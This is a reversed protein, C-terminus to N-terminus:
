FSRGGVLAPIPTPRGDEYRWVEYPFDASASLVFSFAAGVGPQDRLHRYYKVYQRGKTAMDVRPSNNSFETIFLLKDPWRERYAKYGRGHEKSLMQKENQWYCHCALWDARRIAQKAGEMFSWAEYRLEAVGPGPSLGPWGFKARPFQSKLRGVVDLFWDGFERGDRWSLGLGEPTLNVENHVEYYRVGREYFRGMDYEVWRAFDAAPVVRGRFDAFLRVMIFMDPNIARARDVDEPAASSSFKIAEARAARVPEWDPQMMRGDARGHVGVLCKGYEWKPLPVDPEEEDTKEPFVLYPTPDIVDRPFHTLGAATAGEKKLTLHLHSGSANGTSDALGIKKGAQVQQGTHVTAKNLHAYITKFGGAHRIRVHIGYPHNGSGDHVMYVEGDACARVKTNRPAHIDIGEHGPLGWRRYIDPNEGFGQTIETYKVPWLLRIEPEPEGPEIVPEPPEVPVPPEEPTPPAPPAPPEEPIPPAPPEEPTPMVPGFRLDAAIREELLDRLEEPSNTNIVDLAVDPANARFWEVIDGHDPYASPFNVVTVVQTPRHFNVANEPNPTVSPGFHVVYDRVAQVFGWFNARPLLIIQYNPVEPM